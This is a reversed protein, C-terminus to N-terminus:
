VPLPAELQHGPVEFVRQSDIATMRQSGPSRRRLGPPKAPEFEFKSHVRVFTAEAPVFTVYRHRFQQRPNIYEARPFFRRQGGIREDITHPFQLQFELDPGADEIADEATLYRLNMRFDGYSHRVLSKNELTATVEVVWWPGQVGVFTATVEIDTAPEHSRQHIFRWYAWAGATVLALVQIYDPLVESWAKV